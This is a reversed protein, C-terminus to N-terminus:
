SFLIALNYPSWHLTLCNHLKFTLFFYFLQRLIIRCYLFYIPCHEVFILKSKSKHVCLSFTTNKVQFNFTWEWRPDIILCSLVRECQLGTCPLVSFSCTYGQFSFMIGAIIAQNGAIFAPGRCHYCPLFTFWLYSFLHRTGVKM